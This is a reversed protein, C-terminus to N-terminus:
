QQGTYRWKMKTCSLYIDIHTTQNPQKKWEICVAAHSQQQHVRNQESDNPECYQRKAVKTPMIAFEVGEFIRAHAWSVYKVISTFQSNNQYLFYYVCM